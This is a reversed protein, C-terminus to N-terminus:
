LPNIGTYRIQVMDVPVAVRRGDGLMAPIFRRRQDVQYGHRELVARGYESVPPPQNELWAADIGPGALIPVEADAGSTALRLRGVMEITRRPDSSNARSSQSVPQTPPQPVASSALESDREATDSKTLSPETAAPWDALGAPRTAVAERNPAAAPRHTLWGLGFAAVAIGAAISPTLRRRIAPARQSSAASPSRPQQRFRDANDGLERFTQSWCQAELFALSCRKWGDPERDLRDLAARLEAPSLEGDVIRDIFTDDVPHALDFDNM